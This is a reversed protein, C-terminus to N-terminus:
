WPDDNPVDDPISQSKVSDLLKYITEFSLKRIQPDADLLTSSVLPFLLSVKDEISFFEHSASIAELSAIKSQAFSDCLGSRWVQPLIKSIHESDLFPIIKAFCIITNARITPECDDVCKLLSMLAVYKQKPKIKKIVYCISKITENRIQSAVDTFGVLLHQFIDESVQKEDLLHDLEPMQKLLCFRTSRDNDKFLDLIYPYVKKKFDEVLVSKCMLIVSELIKPAMSRYLPIAKLVEPLIQKCSIEVPIKDIYQPLHNFFSEVSEEPKIHLESLFNLVVVSVNKKFYPHTNLINELDIKQRSLTLEDILAQLTNPVYVKLTNIDLGNRRTNCKDICGSLLAYVWCILAGIGWYDLYLSSVSVTNPLHPRWGDRWSTHSKIESLLVHVSLNCDAALEFSSLCWSGDERVAIGMPSIQCYALNCKTHLFHVASFIQGIGLAPDSSINTSSLPYCRETAIYIGSDSEKTALIKLINPHRVLKINKLHRKALDIEYPTIVDVEKNKLVLKFITAPMGDTKSIANHWSFCQLRGFQSEVPGTEVYGLGSSGSGKSTLYKLM